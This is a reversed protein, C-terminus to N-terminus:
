NFSSGIGSTSRRDYDRNLWDSFSLFFVLMSWGSNQVKSVKASPLHYVQSQDRVQSREWMRQKRFWKHWRHRQPPRMQNRSQIRQLLISGRASAKIILLHNAPIAMSWSKSLQEPSALDKVVVLETRHIAGLLVVLNSFDRGPM